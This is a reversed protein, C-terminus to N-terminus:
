VVEPRAVAEANVEIEILEAFTLPPTVSATLTETILEARIAKELRDNRALGLVYDVRNTECWAMLPERTFGSDGRLLIRARPWRPRIQAVIHAVEEVAGAAADINSRRLKAALPHRGCFIYLPLYCYCDYYSHFFRGKQQGHLADDTTDLDLITQKPAKKHADFFLDVFLTEIVAPDHSIKHYRAPNPRSLELRNPTSARLNGNSRPIAKTETSDFQNGLVTPKGRPRGTRLIDVPDVGLAESISFM